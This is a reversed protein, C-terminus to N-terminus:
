SGVWPKETIESVGGPRFLVILCLVLESKLIYWGELGPMSKESFDRGDEGLEEM